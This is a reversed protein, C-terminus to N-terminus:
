NIVMLPLNEGLLVLDGENFAENYHHQANMFQKVGFTYNQSSIKERYLADGFVIKDSVRLRTILAIVTLSSTM